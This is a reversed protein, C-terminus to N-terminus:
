QLKATSILQFKTAPAMDRVVFTVASIYQIVGTREVSVLIASHQADKLQLIVCHDVSQSRGRTFHCTLVDPM